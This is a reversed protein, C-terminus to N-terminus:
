ISVPFCLKGSFELKESAITIHNFIRGKNLIFDYIEDVKESIFVCPTDSPSPYFINTTTTTIVLGKDLILERALAFMLTTKGGGGVLSIVEGSKLDFAKILTKIKKFGM